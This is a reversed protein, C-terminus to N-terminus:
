FRVRAGIEIRRPNNVQGTGFNALAGFDGTDGLGQAPDFLQNHNFINTFTANLEL